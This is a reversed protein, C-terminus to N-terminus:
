QPEAGALWYAGPEPSYNADINQMASFKLVESDPPDNWPSELWTAAVVCCAALDAPDRVGRIVVYEYAGIDVVANLDGDELRLNDELDSMDPPVPANRGAELFSKSWKYYVSAAIGEIISGCDVVELTKRCAPFCEFREAL